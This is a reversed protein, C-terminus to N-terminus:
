YNRINTFRQGNVFKIIGVTYGSCFIIWLLKIEGRRGVGAVRLDAARSKKVIMM